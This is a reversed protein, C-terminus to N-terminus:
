SATDEPHTVGVAARWRDMTALNGLSDNWSMAPSPAEVAGRAVADAVVDAEYAYNGREVPGTVEESGGGKHVTFSYTGASKLGWPMPLHIWGETGYIRAVNDLNVRVGTAVEAVIGGAFKLTAVASEDVGSEGVHGAGAVELPDAFPLKLAAGAVLRALSVPYCGVDLIGGGGLARNLLRSAPDWGARFGFAAQVLRVEGIAGSRIVGVLRATQPSCRYMFAEMLLVKHRRAADVITRAQAANVALPKECLIHKGAEAAKIAWTAHQPHPTAIYVAQVQPDALLAEYSGHRRAIGHETGFKNAAEQLRSGVAMAVGTRSEALGRTFTGAIRGTSLVGWGFSKAVPGMM